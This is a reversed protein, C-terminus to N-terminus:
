VERLQNIYYSLSKISKHGSVRALEDQSPHWYDWIAQLLTHRSLHTVIRRTGTRQNLAAIGNRDCWRYYTNYTASLLQEDQVAKDPNYYQLIEPYYLYRANSGKAGPIRIIGPPMVDRHRLEIIESARAGSALQMTLIHDYM